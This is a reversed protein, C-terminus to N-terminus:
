YSNTSKPHGGWRIRRGQDPQKLPADLTVDGKACKKLWSIADDYNKVWIDPINRPSIRTSLKYIAIHVNQEVLQPNRNDGSTWAVPLWKTIDTGPTVNLSNAQAQYIVAQYSVRNGTVYNTVNSWPTFDAVTATPWLGSLSYSVGTSWQSTSYDPFQNIFPVESYLNYQLQVAPTNVASPQLCKYVKNKWFVLDGVAYHKKYDFISYPEPIYSLAFRLGILTWNSPNFAGAVTVATSCRYVSGAQLVTSNLAYTSTVSFATADLYILQGATYSTTFNFQVTDRFEQSVDYKQTLYSRIEELATEQKVLRYDDNSALIQQLNADQISTFYDNLILYAM